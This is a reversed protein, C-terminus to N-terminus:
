QWLRRQAHLFQQYLVISKNCKASTAESQWVAQVYVAIGISTDNIEFFTYFVATSQLLSINHNTAAARPSCAGGADTALNIPSDAKGGGGDVLSGM